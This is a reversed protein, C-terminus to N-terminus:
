KKWDALEEARRVEKMYAYEQKLNKLRSLPVLCSSEMGDLLEDRCSVYVQIDPYYEQLKSCMDVIETLIHKSPGKYILCLKNCIEAYQELPIM